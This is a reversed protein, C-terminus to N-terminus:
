ERFRALFRESPPRVTCGLVILRPTKLLALTARVSRVSLARQGAQSVSRRSSLPSRLSLRTTWSFISRDTLRFWPLVPCCVSLLLARCWFATTLCVVFAVFSYLPHLSLSFGLKTSNFIYLHIYNVVFDGQRGGGFFFPCFSSVPALCKVVGRAEVGCPVVSCRTNKVIRMRVAVLLFPVSLHRLLHQALVQKKLKKIEVDFDVMGRLQVYVQLWSSRFHCRSSCFILVTVCGLFM